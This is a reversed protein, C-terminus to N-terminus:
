TTLLNTGGIDDVGKRKRCNGDERESDGKEGNRM